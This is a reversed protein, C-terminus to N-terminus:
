LDKVSFKRIFVLDKEKFYRQASKPIYINLYNGHKSVKAVFGAVKM